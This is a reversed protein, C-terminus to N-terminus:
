AGLQTLLQPPQLSLCLRLLLQQLVQTVEQPALPLQLQFIPAPQLSCSLAQSGPQPLVRCHPSPPQLNSTLPVESLCRVLPHPQPDPTLPVMIFHLPQLNPTLPVATRMPTPVLVQWGPELAALSDQELCALSPPLM